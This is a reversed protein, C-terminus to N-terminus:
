AIVGVALRGDTDYPDGGGNYGRLVPALMAKILEAETAVLAVNLPDGPIGATTHTIRPAGYLAPHRLIEVRWLTPIVLYVSIAYVVVAAVLAVGSRVLRPRHRPSPPLGWPLNM